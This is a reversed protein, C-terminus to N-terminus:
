VALHVHVRLHRCIVKGQHVYLSAEQLLDVRGYGLIVSVCQIAKTGVRASGFVLIKQAEARAQRHRREGQHVVPPSM